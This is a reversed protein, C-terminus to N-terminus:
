PMSNIYEVLAQHKGAVKYSRRGAIGFARAHELLTNISWRACSRSPCFPCRFYGKYVQSHISPSRGALLKILTKEKKEEILCDDVHGDGMAAKKARLEAEEYPDLVLDEEIAGTM